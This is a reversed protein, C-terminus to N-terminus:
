AISPSGNEAVGGSTKQLLWYSLADGAYLSADYGMLELACWVVSAKGGRESYVVVKGDGILEKFLDGLTEQDLFIGDGILNQHEINIAGDIHEENFKEASRADVLLVGDDTLNSCTALLEPRPEPTYVAPPRKAPLEEVPLGASIWDDMRGDKITGELILVNQHGLYKLAWFVFTPNGCSWCGYVVLSDDESIGAAGLLLALDTVPLLHGNGDIFSGSPLFVSGKLYSDIKINETYVVVYRSDGEMDILLDEPSITIPKKEDTLETEDVNSEYSPSL